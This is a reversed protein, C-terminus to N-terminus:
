SDSVHYLLVFLVTTSSFTPIHRGNEPFTFSVRTRIVHSKTEGGQEGQLPTVMTMSSYLIFLPASYTPHFRALPHTTIISIGKKEIEEVVHNDHFVRSPKRRFGSLIDHLEITQFDSLLVPLCILRVKVTEVVKTKTRRM